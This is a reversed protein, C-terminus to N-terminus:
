DAHLISTYAILGVGAQKAAAIVNRHQLRRRGNESGSVLLLRDIGRFADALTAPRDYDAVRIEVDRGSLLSAAAAHAEPDRMGAVIDSAPVTELLIDIVLRGLQGAAGTVFLKPRVPM